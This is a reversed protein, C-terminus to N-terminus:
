LPINAPFESPFHSLHCSDGATKVKGAKGAVLEYFRDIFTSWLGVQARWFLAVRLVQSKDPLNTM